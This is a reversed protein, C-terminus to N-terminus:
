GAWAGSEFEVRDQTRALCLNLFQDFELQLLEDRKQQEQVHAAARRLTRHEIGVFVEFARPAIGRFPLDILTQSLSFVIHRRAVSGALDGSAGGAAGSRAGCHARRGSGGAARDEAV